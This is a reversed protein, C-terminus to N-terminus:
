NRSLPPEFGPRFALQRYWDTGTQM